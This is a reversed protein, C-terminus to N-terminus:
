ASISFVAGPEPLLGALGYTGPTSASEVAAHIQKQYSAILADQEAAGMSEAESKSVANKKMSVLQDILTNLIRLRNVPVGKEGKEAPTGKVHTFQSYVAVSPKVPVYLKGSSSSFVSRYTSANLNIDNARM